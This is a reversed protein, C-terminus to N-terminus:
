PGSMCNTAFVPSTHDQLFPIGSAFTFLPLVTAMIRTISRMGGAYCWPLPLLILVIDVVVPALVPTWVQIFWDETDQEGLRPRVFM